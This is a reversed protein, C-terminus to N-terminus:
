HRYKWNYMRFTLFPFPRLCSRAPLPARSPDEYLSLSRTLGDVEWAQLPSTQFYQLLELDRRGSLVPPRTM